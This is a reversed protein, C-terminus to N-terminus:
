GLLTRMYNCPAGVLQAAEQFKEISCLAYDQAWREQPSAFEGGESPDLWAGSLGRTLQYSVKESFTLMDFDAFHGLEHMYTLRLGDANSTDLWMLNYGDLACSQHQGPYFPCEPGQIVGITTPPLPMLSKSHWDAYPLTLPPNGAPAYVYVANAATNQTAWFLVVATLLLIARRMLTM